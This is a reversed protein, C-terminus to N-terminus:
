ATLREYLDTQALQHIYSAEIRARVDSITEAVSKGSKLVSVLAVKGDVKYLVPKRGGKIIGKAEWQAKIDAASHGNVESAGDWQAVDLGAAYTAGAANHADVDVAAAITEAEAGTHSLRLDGTLRLAELRMDEATVTM